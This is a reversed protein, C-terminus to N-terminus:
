KTENTKKASLTLHQANKEVKKGDLKVYDGDRWRLLFNGYFKSLPNGSQGTAILFRSNDLNDLDYVARYSPGHVNPFRWLDGNKMSPSARNITDHGGPTAIKLKLLKGLIPIRDFIQHKFSTSHLEGWTIDKDLQEYNSAVRRLSETMQAVCNDENVLKEGYLCWSDPRESLRRQLRLINATQFSSADSPLSGFAARNLWYIWHYFIAPETANLSLQGDWESLKQKITESEPDTTPTKLLIELVELAAISLTDMQITLNDEVSLKDSQDLLQHIRRARYSNPWDKAILYPYDDSVLKNNATVLKQDVPNLSKPLDKHPIIGVWDNDGTWGSVPYRGDGQKRVPVRGPAMLQINGLRDAMVLTQQPSHFNKVARSFDESQKAYNIDYLAQATLDDKRLATWSLALLHGDEKNATGNLVPSLIPGHRSRRVTLEHAPQDKILITEISKEFDKYGEPTLYQNPDDPNLKEIFLDQTDSHTTTFGWAIHSNHGLVLFPVGPSTAGAWTYDPTEIRVLYWPGPADLALHPDNALIPKGTTTKNGSVVWANSADKPALPWPLPHQGAFIGQPVAKSLDFSAIIQPDNKDQPWFRDVEEPSLHNLLRQRLLERNFNDSLQLAMLRGWLLSDTPTWKEPRYNLLQFEPSLTSTHNNIYANVGASYAVFAKQVNPSLIEYNEEVLKQFGLTRMFRDINLTAEGVVESLRGSGARRMFDMQWLRDQAHIFGLAKYADYKNQAKITVLGQDDRIVDVREQLAQIQINGTLQPLSGRMWFFIGTGIFLVTLLMGALCLIPIKIKRSM